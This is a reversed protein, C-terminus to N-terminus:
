NRCALNGQFCNPRGLLDKQAADQALRRQAVTMCIREIRNSGPPRRRECIMRQDEAGTIASKIWELENFALTKDQESLESVSTKGDILKLLGDQRRVLENRDSEKMDKFKGEADIVEQRLITQQERIEELTPSKKGDSAWSSAAFTMLALSVMWSFGIKM